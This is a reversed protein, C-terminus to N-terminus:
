VDVLQDYWHGKRNYHQHLTIEYDRTLLSDETYEPSQKISERSLDVFVKSDSWSVRQIWGTSILVKKGSWWSGTNVILYRIAWTEDDIIFDQVHGIEGDLAQIKLGTAASITRLRCDWARGGSWYRPLGYYDLYDGEFQRSVPMGFSLAPSGEIQKRSADVSLLRRAENAAIVACPAFLVQRGALWSGTDAIVYRVAWSNEDFYFDKVTGIGSNRGSLKYGLFPRLKKLM